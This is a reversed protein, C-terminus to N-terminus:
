RLGLAKQRELVRELTKPAPPPLTEPDIQPRRHPGGQGSYDAQSASAMEVLKELDKATMEELKEQSFPCHKNAILTAIATAKREAINEMAEQIGERARPDAAALIEEFTRPKPREPEPQKKPQQEMRILTAEDLRELMDRDQEKWDTGPDAILAAVRRKVAPTANTATPMPEEEEVSAHADAEQTVPIYRTDRQVDQEDDRLRIVGNEDTTWSRMCLREGKRYTFTQHASDISDIYIPTMEVGMERALAGYLSERTDSDTQHTVVSGSAEHTVLTPTGTGASAVEDAAADEEDPAPPQSERNVFDRLVAVFGRWGRKPEQEMASREQCADCTGGCACGERHHLRPAGCGHAWDCAGVSNPLLALHDARLDTHVMTYPTGLFSGVRYDTHCFFGTSVELPTATELMALAQAADDGLTRVHGVDVWIEAQARTLAYGQRMTTLYQTRYVHGCGYTALVDPDNASIAGGAADTPHNVVLPMGDWQCQRIAEGSVYGQNLVGEVIMCCPAVLYERENRVLRQPTVTLATNVTLVLRNAALAPEGM